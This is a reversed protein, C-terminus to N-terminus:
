NQIDHFLLQSNTGVYVFGYMLNQSQKTFTNHSQILDGSSSGSYKQHGKGGLGEDYWWSAFLCIEMFHITSM